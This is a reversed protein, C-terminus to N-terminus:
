SKGGFVRRFFGGLRTFFGPQPQQTNPDVKAALTPSEHKGNSQITGSIVTDERIRVSRVLIITEPSPDPLPVPSSSDYVLAPMLVKYIPAEFVPPPQSAGDSGGNSNPSPLPPAVVTKMSEVVPKAANASLSFVTDRALPPKALNDKAVEMECSCGPASPTAAALQGGALSLQGFQPVLLSQGSLQQEVRVAGSAPRLCMKGSQELGIIIERSGGGIIVPTAVILPTFITLPEEGAIKIHLTGYDLAVTLAGQAKLLQLRAAGCIIIEGGDNLFIRAQGSRVDLHSGSPLLAAALKSSDMPAPPAGSPQEIVFDRGEVRGVIQAPAQARLQLPPLTVLALVAFLSFVGLLVGRTGPPRRNLPGTIKNFRTAVVLKRLLSETVAESPSAFASTM